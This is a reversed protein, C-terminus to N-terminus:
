ATVLQPEFAVKVAQRSAFTDFAQQAQDFSFRHTILKDAKEPARRLFTILDGQDLVNMHWVGTVTLHKRIFDASPGVPITGHNEGVFAIRAMPAALDILMRQAAAAGSCEIGMLLGHGGIADRIAQQFDPQGPDLVVQAGLDAAVRRRYPEMDVGIVRVNMFSALATTGLGVPGLGTVVVTDFARAGVNKLAGYAPGLGCGLLAGRTYSIDDPLITCM